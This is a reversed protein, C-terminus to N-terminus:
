IQVFFPVANLVIPSLRGVLRCSGRSDIFINSLTRIGASSSTHIGMECRVEVVAKSLSGEPLKAFVERVEPKQLAVHLRKGQDSNAGPAIYIDGEGLKQVRQKWYNTKDRLARKEKAQAKLKADKLPMAVITTASPPPVALKLSLSLLVVVLNMRPLVSCSLSSSPLPPLLCFTHHHRSLLFELSVDVYGPATCRRWFVM